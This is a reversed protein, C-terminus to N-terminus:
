KKGNPHNLKAPHPPNAHTPVSIAYLYAISKIKVPFILRPIGRSPCFSNFNKVCNGQGSLCFMDIISSLRMFNVRQRNKTTTDM